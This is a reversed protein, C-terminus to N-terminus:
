RLDQKMLAFGAAGIAGSLDGFRAKVIEVKNGGARWEYAQMFSDLPEFLDKDAATIGGGLIIKEPSLINTLSALAISLKRVSGLWLWSAFPDGRRYDDVLLHTSTYKGLSRKEISCNGIAEELSGPLNCIDNEGESDITMHGMHGAKQFAGQYIKGDILIAGGVGTGLTLMIAHQIGIAEGFRAEAAMAAIADNAVYTKHNLYETWNFGELGQLRGPMFSIATNSEDPIGPASIGLVYEFGNIKEKLKGVTDKVATKWPQGSIDKTETYVQDIQNGDMDLAVGKIRTGGIDIGIAAYMM